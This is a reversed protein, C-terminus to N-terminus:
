DKFTRKRAQEKKTLSREHIIGFLIFLGFCWSVVNKDELNDWDFIVSLIAIIIPAPLLFFIALMGWPEKHITKLFKKNM